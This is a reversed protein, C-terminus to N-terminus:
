KCLAVAPSNGDRQTVKRNRVAIWGWTAGTNTSIIFASDQGSALTTWANAPWHSVEYYGTAGQWALCPQAVQQNFFPGVIDFFM